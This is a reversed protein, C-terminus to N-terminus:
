RTKGETDFQAPMMAIIQERTFRNKKMGADLHAKLM